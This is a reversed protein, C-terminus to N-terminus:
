DDILCKNLNIEDRLEVLKRAKSKTAKTPGRSMIRCIVWGVGGDGLGIAVGGACGVCAIGVSPSM